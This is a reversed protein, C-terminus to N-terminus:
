LADFDPFSWSTLKSYNPDNLARYVLALPSPKFRKPLFIKPRKNKQWDLTLGYNLRPQLYDSTREPVDMLHILASIRILPGFPKVTVKETSTGIKKRKLNKNPCRSRWAIEGESYIRSGKKERNLKGFRLELNGVQVFNLHRVLANVAKSNAVGFVGAFNSGAKDYTRNALVKLLGRGQYGPHTATNLALLSLGEFSDVRTPICAYHAVVVGNDCADFGVVDGIPNEFYLWKLYEISPSFDQYSDGFLTKYDPLRSKEIPSITFNKFNDQTVAM